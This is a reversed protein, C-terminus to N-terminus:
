PMRRYRMCCYEGNLSLMKKCHESACLDNMKSDRSNYVDAIGHTHTAASLLLVLHALPRM